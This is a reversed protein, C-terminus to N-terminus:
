STLIPSHTKDPLIKWHCIPTNELFNIWDSLPEPPFLSKLQYAVSKAKKQLKDWDWKVYKKSQYANFEIVVAFDLHAKEEPDYYNRLKIQEKLRKERDKDTFVEIQWEEWGMIHAIVDAKTRGDPIIASSTKSNLKEIAPVYFSLAECHLKELSSYRRMLNEDSSIELLRKYWNEKDFKQDM